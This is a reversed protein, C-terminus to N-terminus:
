PHNNWRTLHRDGVKLHAERDSEKKVSALAKAQDNCLRCREVKFQTLQM